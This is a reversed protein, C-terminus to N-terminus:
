AVGERHIEAKLHLLLSPIRPGRIERRADPGNLAVALCGSRARPGGSCTPTRACPSTPVVLRIPGFPTHPVIAVGDSLTLPLRTRLVALNRLADDDDPGTNWIATKPRKQAVVAKREHCSPARDQSSVRWPRSPSSGSGRFAATQVSDTRQDHEARQKPDDLENSAFVSIKEAHFRRAHRSARDIAEAKVTYQRQSGDVNWLGPLM